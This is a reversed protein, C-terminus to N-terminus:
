FTKAIRNAVANGRTERLFDIYEDKSMKVKRGDPYTFTETSKNYRGNYTHNKSAKNSKYFRDMNVKHSVYELNSPHNNEKNGDIHDIDYGDPREGLFAKAVLSHVTRTRDTTILKYGANNKSTLKKSDTKYYVVYKELDRTFRDRVVIFECDENVYVNDVCKKFGGMRLLIGFVAVEVVSSRKKM